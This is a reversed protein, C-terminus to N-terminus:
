AMHQVAEALKGFVDFGDEMFQRVKAPAVRKQSRYFIMKGDQAELTMDRHQMFYDMLDPTFLKRIAAEDQGNLVFASSFEPHEEFNIDKFGLMSGLRDFFGEPRLLFSPFRQGQNCMYMVTQRKTKTSKGSGVTYQYDFIALETAGADGFIVNRVRQARGVSALRFSALQTKLPLAVPSKSKLRGVEPFFQLKLEDAFESLHRQRRRDMILSVIASALGFTILGIFLFPFWERM